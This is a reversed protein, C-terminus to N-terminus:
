EESIAYVAEATEELTHQADALGLRIARDTMFMAGTLVGEENFKLNPRGSKVADQFRKVLPSLENEALKYRGELAERYSLNKDKSEKAYIVIKREGTQPDQATDDIICMMAGISGVESLPNDMYIADCQSAVWYAASGCADVHAYVPKGFGRAYRIAQLMPSVSNVAGGGSDIDLVFGRVSADGTLRMMEAAISETGDNECTAYKTMVGHLPVIVVKSEDARNEGERIRGTGAAESSAYSRIGATASDLEVPLKALYDLAVGLLRDPYAVLWKGSLIERVLRLTQIKM